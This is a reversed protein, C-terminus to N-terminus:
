NELDHTETLLVNGTMEAPQEIDLLALITPAVDILSGKNAKFHWDNNGIYVLPVPECTHATHAQQTGEDYMAEANGHDATILLVGGEEALAQGVDRMCRDLCEIAKVTAKFDGSHGVMDANAYNCIILDYAKSHIADVLARTLEPASMEPLLDYTAVAPSPILIRDENPFVQESGGNFFFTVHAYKETEAIRLQTMGNASIVEGLTNRLTLPPFVCETNLSKAYRTMSVFHSLTPQKSRIFGSFADNIFTQTLQRARDARFNFFFVADEDEIAKAEGILTPPIFEDSKKEAYFSAIAEEAMDFHYNSKADALLHYVPSIREWRKDRDMAFYRGCISRITAVPYQKLQQNLKEISELASQPPTDRGDLFLHLSVQNFHHEACFALFAFLHNEHSHVGGPSLLGMVHLTKGSEKLENILSIFVPNKAFEGNAIAKNICTFDQNIVRGAGIHMHGVESNGMQEDPLGVQHGSADLLIHPRSLWWEDWQPTKAAKIANYEQNSSYGWGDLIMLVLPTNKLM